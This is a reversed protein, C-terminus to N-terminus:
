WRQTTKVHYDSIILSALKILLPDCILLYDVTNLYEHFLMWPEDGYLGIGCWILVYKGCVNRESRCIYM